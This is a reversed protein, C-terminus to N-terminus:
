QFIEKRSSLFLLNSTYLGEMDILFVADRRRVISKTKKKRIERRLSADITLDISAVLDDPKEKKITLDIIQKEHKFSPFCKMTNAARSKFFYVVSNM